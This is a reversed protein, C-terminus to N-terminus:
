GDDEFSSQARAAMMAAALGAMRENLRIQLIKDKTVQIGHQV